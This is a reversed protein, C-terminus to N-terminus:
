RGLTANLRSLKKLREPAWPLCDSVMHMPNPHLAAPIIDHRIISDGLSRRIAMIVLLKTGQLPRKGRSMAIEEINIPPNIFLWNLERTAVKTIITTTSMPIPIVRTTDLNKDAVKRLPIGDDKVKSSGGYLFGLIPLIMTREMNSLVKNTSPLATDTTAGAPRMNHSMAFIWISSVAVMRSILAWNRLGRPLAIPM